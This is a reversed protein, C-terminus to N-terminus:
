FTVKLSAGYYRMPPSTRFEGLESGIDSGLNSVEPDVVQNSAPLWTLLNRGFFSIKAASAGVKGAIVKPLSYSLTVERLKFYTRDLILNKYSVSQMKVTDRTQLGDFFTQITKKIEGEQAFIGQACLMVSIIFLKKM